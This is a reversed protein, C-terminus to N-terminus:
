GYLGSRCPLNKSDILPLDIGLAYQALMEKIEEGKDKSGQKPESFYVPLGNGSEVVVLRGRTRVRKDCDLWFAFEAYPRRDPVFLLAGIGQVDSQGVRFFTETQALLTDMGCYDIASFDNYGAPHIHAWAKLEKGEAIATEQAKVVGEATIHTLSWYCIQEPVICFDSVNKGVDGALYISCEVSGLERRIMAVAAYGQELAGRSVILDRPIKCNCQGYNM